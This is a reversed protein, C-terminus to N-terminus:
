DFPDARLDKLKLAKAEGLLTSGCPVKGGDSGEACTLCGSPPCIELAEFPLGHDERVYMPVRHGHCQDATLFEPGMSKWSGDPLHTYEYCLSYTMGLETARKMYRTHGERRYEETVTKQGGCSNETFLERFYAARNDGFRKTIKDVM